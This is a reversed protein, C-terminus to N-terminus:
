EPLGLADRLRAALADAHAPNSSEPLYGRGSQGGTRWDLEVQYVRRGDLTDCANTRVAFVAEFPLTVTQPRPAPPRWTLERKELDVTLEPRERVFRHMLIGASTASVILGVAQWVTPDMGHFYGCAVAAAFSTLTLWQAVPGTPTPVLKWGTPTPHVDLDPDTRFEDLPMPRSVVVVWPFIPVVVWLSLVDVGHIGPLLVADALDNPNYYVTVREGVPFREALQKETLYHSGFATYWVRDNALRLGHTVYGYQIVTKTSKSQEITKHGIIVGDTTAFGTARIQRYWMSGVLLAFLVAFPALLVIGLCDPKRHTPPNTTDTMLTEGDDSQDEHAVVDGYCVGTM